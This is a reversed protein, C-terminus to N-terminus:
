TAHLAEKCVQLKTAIRGDLMGFRSQVICDGQKLEADARFTLAPHKGRFDAEHGAILELDRTSLRVELEPSGHDIGRLLENVIGLVTDQSIPTAALVRSAVETALAPLLTRFQAILEAHVATLKSFTGSQLQLADARLELMQREMLETAEGAGRQRAELCAADFQEQSYTAEPPPTGAIFIARPPVSFHVFM